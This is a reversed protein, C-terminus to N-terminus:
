TRSVLVLWMFFVFAVKVFSVLSFMFIVEFDIMHLLDLIAVIGAVRVCEQVLM